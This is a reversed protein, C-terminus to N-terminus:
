EPSEGAALAATARVVAAFARAALRSMRRARLWGHILGPDCRYAVPVGAAHLLAAYDEADQRLPDYGAAFVAAPALGAFDGADLPSFEPDGQPLKEAGGAYLRAYYACDAATLGPADAARGTGLRAPDFSLGPYILVQGAPQPAGRRALRRCLGAALHGGASDGGVLAPRGEAALAHWAAAVDDLAAPYPHEPALRYDVSLVDVGAGACLEACVDDHSELGGLIFGGGHAYLLAAAAPRAPRYRRVAVAGSATPLTGDAVGVGAPRPARFAATLRAYLRRAEAIDATNAELPYFSASRDLFARMEPDLWRALKDPDATMGPM